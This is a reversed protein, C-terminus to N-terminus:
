LLSIFRKFQATKINRYSDFFSNCEIKGLQGWDGRYKVIGRCENCTVFPVMDGDIKVKKFQKWLPSKGCNAVLEM